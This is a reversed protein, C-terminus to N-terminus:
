SQQIPHDELRQPEAARHRKWAKPNRFIDTQEARQGASAKVKMSTGPKPSANGGTNLCRDRKRHNDDGDPERTKGCIHSRGNHPDQCWAGVRRSRRAISDRM